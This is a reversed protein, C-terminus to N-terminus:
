NPSSRYIVVWSTKQGETFSSGAPKRVKPLPRAYGKLPPYAESLLPTREKAFCLKSPSLVKKFFNGFLNDRQYVLHKGM